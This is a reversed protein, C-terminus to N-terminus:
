CFGKSDRLPFGCVFNEQLNQDPVFAGAQSKDGGGAQDMIHHKAIKLNFQIQFDLTFHLM